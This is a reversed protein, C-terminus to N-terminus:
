YPYAIRIGKGYFVPISPNYILDNEWTYIRSEYSATSYTYIRTSFSLPIRTSRFSFDQYALIGKEKSQAPHSIELRSIFRLQDAPNLEINVRGSTIREYESSEIGTEVGKDKLSERHWTSATIKIYELSEVTLRGIYRTSVPFSASRYGYWLGKKKMIGADLKIGPAIDLNINALYNNSFSNYTEKGFVQGHFSTYGRSCYTWMINLVAREAPILRLGQLLAFSGSENIAGEGFLYLRNFSISYDSSLVLNLKGTFDFRNEVHEEPVFPLSFYNSKFSTGMYVKGIHYNINGGASYEVLNNRKSETNLTNHQGGDYLSRVVTGEDPKTYTNADIRNSSIYASFNIEKKNGTLAIGRCYNNEDSSAYPIIRDSGKILGTNLPSSAPSYGQWASLGQGYRTRFDGVIVQNITGDLSVRMYGAIFEPKYGEYLFNEGMDKEYSLGLKIRGKEYWSRTVFKFPLGTYEGTDRTSYMISSLVSLRGTRPLRREAQKSIYIFPSILSVLEKDFGTIFTIEALSILPGSRLTYNLLSKAQFESLFFLRSIEELSKSNINVPNEILSYLEETIEGIYMEDFGASIFSDIYGSLSEDSIAQQSRSLNISLCFIIGTVLCRYM